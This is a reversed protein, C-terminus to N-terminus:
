FVKAKLSPTNKPVPCVLSQTFDIACSEKPDWSSKHMNRPALQNIKGVSEVRVKTQISIM